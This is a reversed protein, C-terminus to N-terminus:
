ILLRSCNPWTKLQSLSMFYLVHALLKESHQQNAEWDREFAFSISASSALSHLLFPRHQWKSIKRLEPACCKIPMKWKFFDVFKFFFISQCFHNALDIFSVLLLILSWFWRLLMPKVAEITKCNLFTNCPLLTFQDVYCVNTICLKVLYAGVHRLLPVVLNNRSRRSM